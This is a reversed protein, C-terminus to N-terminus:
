RSSLFPLLRHSLPAIANTTTATAAATTGTFPVLFSLACLFFPPHASPAAAKYRRRGCDVNAPATQRWSPPFPVCNQLSTIFNGLIQPLFFFVVGGWVWRGGLIFLFDAFNTVFSWFKTFSFIPNMFMIFLGQLIKRTYKSPAKFWM